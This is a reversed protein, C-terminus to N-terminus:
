KLCTTAIRGDHLNYHEPETQFQELSTSALTTIVYATTQLATSCSLM